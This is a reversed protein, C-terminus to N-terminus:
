AMQHHNKRNPHVHYWFCVRCAIYNVTWLAPVVWLLILAQSTQKPTITHHQSADFM